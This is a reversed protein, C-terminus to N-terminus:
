TWSVQHTNLFEIGGYILTYLSSIIIYWFGNSCHIVNSKYSEARCDKYSSFTDTVYDYSHACAGAGGVTDTACATNCCRIMAFFNYNGVYKDM